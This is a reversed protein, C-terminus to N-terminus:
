ANLRARQAQNFKAADPKMHAEIYERMSRTEDDFARQLGRSGFKILAQKTDRRTTALNVIMARPRWDNAAPKADGKDRGRQRAQPDTPPVGRHEAHPALKRIAPIWGAKLFAISRMRAGIMATIMRTMKARGAGLARNFFPSRRGADRERVQIIAVALPVSELGAKASKRLSGITKQRVIKKGNKSLRNIVVIQGLGTKIRTPDVKATFWNAKRAIYWAKTNIIVQWTRKTYEKYVQLTQDFVRQNWTAAAAM